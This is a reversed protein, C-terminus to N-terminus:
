KRSIGTPINGEKVSLKYAAGNVRITYTGIISRSLTYNYTGEYKPKEDDEAPGITEIYSYDLTEGDIFSLQWYEHHIFFAAGTYSDHAVFTKGVLASQMQAIMESQYANFRMVGLAALVVGVIIITTTIVAKRKYSLGDRTSRDKIAQYQRARETDEKNVKRWYLSASTEQQSSGSMLHQGCEPCFQNNDGIQKNCYPCIM